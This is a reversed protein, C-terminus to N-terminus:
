CIFTCTCTGRKGPICLTISSGVPMSLQPINSSSCQIIAGSM